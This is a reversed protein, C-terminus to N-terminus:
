SKVGSTNSAQGYRTPGASFLPQGTSYNEHVTYNILVEGQFPPTNILMDYNKVTNGRGVELM